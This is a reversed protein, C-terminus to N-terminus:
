NPTQVPEPKSVFQQQSPERKPGLGLAILSLSGLKGDPALSQDAQFRKLAAVCNADWNGDVAGDYYGKEALAQQIEKYRDPTPTAQRPPGSKRARVARGRKKKSSKGSKSKSASAKRTVGPKAKGASSTTKKVTRKAAPEAIPALLLCAFLISIATRV